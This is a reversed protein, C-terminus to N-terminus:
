FGPTLNFGFRWGQGPRDLPRIAALEFIVYGFVNARLGGGVSTVFDRTGDAFSPRNSATWAVGTDAFAFVDIPLAGYRYRGSVAGV